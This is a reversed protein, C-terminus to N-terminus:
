AQGYHDTRRSKVEVFVITDHDKAIIDIEGIPTRYNRMLIRYGNKNLYTAALDENQYGYLHSSHGMAKDDAPM